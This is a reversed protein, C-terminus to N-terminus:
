PWLCIQQQQTMKCQTFCFKDMGCPFKGEKEETKRYIIKMEIKILRCFSEM